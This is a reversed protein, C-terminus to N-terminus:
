NIVWNMFLLLDTPINLGVIEDDSIDRTGNGGALIIGKM